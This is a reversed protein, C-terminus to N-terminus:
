PQALSLPQSLMPVSDAAAPSALSIHSSSLRHLPTLPLPRYTVANYRPHNALPLLRPPPVAPIVGNTYPFAPEEDLSLHSRALAVCCARSTQISVSITQLARQLSIQSSPGNLATMHHRLFQYAEKHLAGSTEVAFVVLKVDPDATNFEADYSAHKQAARHIASSGPHYDPDAHQANHAAMTVDILTTRPQEESHSLLVIDARRAAAQPDPVFGPVRDLYQDMLPEGIPVSYNGEIKSSDLYHRLQASLIAHSTNRVKNRVTIRPCVLVHDGLCDMPCGCICFERPAMVPLLSRIQWALRFAQDTMRNLHYAPNACLWQNSDPSTCNTIGQRRIAAETPNLQHLAAHGHRPHGTPLSALEQRRRQQQLQSSIRSQMKRQSPSTWASRLSVADLCDVGSDRLYNVSDQFEVMSATPLATEFRNDGTTFYQHMHPACQLLSGTYASRAIHASCTMGGGGLRVSLFLRNLNQQMMESGEPPLLRVSDTIRFVTNIIANDLRQAADLTMSPPCSRLLYTLQQATCMRIMAYITQVRAKMTGNAGRLYSELTSLERIISDVTSHISTASYARSGVPIGGVHLGLNAPIWHLGATVVAARQEPTFAEGVGYIVNKHETTAALSLGIQSYLHRITLIAPVVDEPKGVVHTDDAILFIFVGPHLETARRISPAQGMNFLASSLSGGQPVGRHLTFGISTGARQDHFITRPPTGRLLLQTFPLLVPAENAVVDLIPEKHIANFANQCDVKGVVLTPDAELLYRVSHAVVECGAPLGMYQEDGCVTRIVDRHETALAHGTYSLLPDETVIPRVDGNSKLLATGKGELLLKRAAGDTPIGAAILNCISTLHHIADPNHRLIDQYHDNSFGNLGVSAGRRKRMIYSMLSDSDEVYLRPLHILQARIEQAAIDIPPDAPLDAAAPYKGRLLAQIRGDSVPAVASGHAAQRAKLMNGALIHRNMAQIARNQTPPDLQFAGAITNEDLANALIVDEDNV